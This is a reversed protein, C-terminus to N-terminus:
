KPNLVNPNIYPVDQSTVLVINLMIVCGVERVVTEWLSILCHPFMEAM